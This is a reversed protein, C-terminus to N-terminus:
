SFIAFQWWFMLKTPGGWGVVNINSNGARLKVVSLSETLSLAM